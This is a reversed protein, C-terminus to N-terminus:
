KQIADRAGIATMWGGIAIIVKVASVPPMAYVGAIAVILTGLKTWSIKDGAKVCKSFFSHLM